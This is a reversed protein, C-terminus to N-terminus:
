RGSYSGELSTCLNQVLADKISSIATYDAVNFVHLSSPVSAIERLEAVEAEGVGIAFM